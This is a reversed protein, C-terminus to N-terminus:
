DSLPNYLRSCFVSLWYSDNRNSRLISLLLLMGGWLCPAPTHGRRSPDVVGHSHIPLPRAARCSTLMLHTLSAEDTDAAAGLALM